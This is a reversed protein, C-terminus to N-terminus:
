KAAMLMGVEIAACLMIPEGNLVHIRLLAAPMSAAMASNSRM